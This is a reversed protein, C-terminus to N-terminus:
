IPPQTKNKLQTNLAAKTYWVKCSRDFDIMGIKTSTSRRANVFCTYGWDAVKIIHKIKTQHCHVRLSKRKFAIISKAINLGESMAGLNIETLSLDPSCFYSIQTCLYSKNKGRVRFKCADASFVAVCIQLPYVSILLVIHGEEEDSRSDFKQM